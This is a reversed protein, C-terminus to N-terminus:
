LSRESVLRRRVVFTKQVIRFELNPVRVKGGPLYATEGEVTMRKAAEVSKKTPRGRYVTLPGRWGLRWRRRGKFRFELDFQLHGERRVDEDIAPIIKGM